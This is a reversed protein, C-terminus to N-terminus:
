KFSAGKRALGFIDGLNSKGKLGAEEKQGEKKTIVFYNKNPFFRYKDEQPKSDLRSGKEDNGCLLNVDM